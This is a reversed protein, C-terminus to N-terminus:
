KFNRIFCCRKRLRGEVCRERKKEHVEREGRMYEGTERVCPKVSAPWMQFHTSLLSLVFPHVHLRMETPLCKVWTAQLRFWKAAM